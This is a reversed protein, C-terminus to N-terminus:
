DWSLNVYEVLNVIYWVSDGFDCVLVLVWIVGSSEYNFLSLVVSM